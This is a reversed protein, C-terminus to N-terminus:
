WFVRGVLGVSGVRRSRAMWWRPQMLDSAKAKKSQLYDLDHVEVVENTVEV